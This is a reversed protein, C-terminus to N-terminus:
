QSVPTADDAVQGDFRFQLTIRITQALPNVKDNPVLYAADIGIAQYRVGAGFSLYQRNGKDKDEYFYGARLALLDNYWYELGASLNVEKLEESFGDPADSFSSFISSVVGKQRAATLANQSSDSPTPVLLKNADLALTIKNFPDLDYTLATGLRLNTPLFDKEQPNTYSIKGGINSVNAGFSLNYTQGSASTLDKTYYAGLDVAASNGPKTASGNVSTGGTLNSHIFRAAVGVGFNESLKQGYGASITYEKPSFEGQDLNNVDRFNIQGLDFYLLALSFASNQNLKRYGSLYALGMDDTINRLWPTYSTSAGWKNEVFGLKGTNWHLSNADPSLAVGAEGLAASRSDPSITLIPVATTIVRRQASASFPALSAAALLAAGLAARSSHFM